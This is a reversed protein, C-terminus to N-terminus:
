IELESKHERINQNSNYITIARLYLLRNWVVGKGITQALNSCSSPLLAPYLVSTM